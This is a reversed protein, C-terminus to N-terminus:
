LPPDFNTQLTGILILPNKIRRLFDSKPPGERIKGQFDLGNVNRSAVPAVRVMEVSSILTM